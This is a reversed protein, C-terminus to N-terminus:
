RRRLITHYLDEYRQAMSAVGFLGRVRERGNRGLQSRLAQNALLLEVAEGLERPNDAGVVIGTKKDVVIEPLGGVNTAIVPIAGRMAEVAVLSAAERHSPIVVLAPKFARTWSMDTWGAFVVRDLVGRQRAQEELQIRAEGDGVIICRCSPCFPLADILLDFGKEPALRGVAVVTRASPAPELDDIENLTVGNYITQIRSAPVGLASEISGSIFNSVGIYTRPLRSVAKSLGVQSRSSPPFLGHVVSISPVKALAAAITGYQGSLLHRQNVHVIDPHAGRIGWAQRILSSFDQRGRVAPMLQIRVTERGNAISELVDPNTGLLVPQITPSLSSLLERLFIESGGIGDHADVYFAVRVPSRQSLAPLIHKNSM